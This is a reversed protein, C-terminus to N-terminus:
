VTFDLDRVYSAETAPVWVFENGISDKIVTGYDKTGIVYKFGHPIPVGDDTIDDITPRWEAKIYVDLIGKEWEKEQKNEGKYVLKGSQVEIKEEYGETSALKDVMYNGSLNVETPDFSGLDKTYQSSLYMSLEDQINRIDEKFRAERASEIPNNKSLTLIVAVALIIIVIITVILVILSIGRHTLKTFDNKEGRKM